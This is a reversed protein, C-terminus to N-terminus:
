TKAYDFDGKFVQDRCKNTRQQANNGPSQDAFVGCRLLLLFVASLEPTAAEKREKFEGTHELTEIVKRTAEYVRIVVPHPGLALRQTASQMWSQTHGRSVVVSQMWARM